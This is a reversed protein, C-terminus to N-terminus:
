GYSPQGPFNPAELGLKLTLSYHILICGVESSISTGPPLSKVRSASFHPRINWQRVKVMSKPQALRYLLCSKTRKSQDRGEKQYQSIRFTVHTRRLSTVNQVIYANVTRGEGRELKQQPLAPVVSSAKQTRTWSDIRNVSRLYSADGSKTVKTTM